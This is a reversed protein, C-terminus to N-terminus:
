RLGLIELPYFLPLVFWNFLWAAVGGVAKAARLPAGVVAGIVRGVVRRRNDLVGGESGGRVGAESLNGSGTGVYAAGVSFRRRAPESAPTLAPAVLVLTTDEPPLAPDLSATAATICGMSHGMM